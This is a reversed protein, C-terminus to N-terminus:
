SRSEMQRRRLRSISRSRQLFIPLPQDAALRHRLSSNRYHSSRFASVRTIPARGPRIAGTDATLILMDDKRLKNLLDPLRRDFSELAAAYGPIDRRHGYRMDFDIFNTMLLGGDCLTDFEKLTAEFLADNGDAKHEQGTGCHAFIDGIKGV